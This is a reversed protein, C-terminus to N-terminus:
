SPGREIIGVLVREEGPWRRGSPAKVGNWDSEVWDNSSSVRKLYHRRTLRPDDGRALQDVEPNYGIPMTLLARGGPALCARLNDLARGVKGPERPTEDWGVHELTSISVILDYPAKPTYDVVDENLVGPAVEYKDVVDHAVPFYHSLVNGVELIRKGRAQQVADWVIPVEVERENRWTHNYKHLWYPYAKGQFTFTASAWRARHLYYLAHHHLHQERLFAAAGKAGGKATAGKLDTVFKRADM